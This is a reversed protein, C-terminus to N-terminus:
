QGGSACASGHRSTSGRGPARCSRRRSWPSPFRTSVVLGSSQMLTGTGFRRGDHHPLIILQRRLWRTFAVTRCYALGGEASTAYREVLRM